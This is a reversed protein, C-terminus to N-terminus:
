QLVRAMAYANVLVGDRFAFDVLTGEIAFGHKEYLAIAAANDVYVTLELRRVNLWRDALDIAAAVLASGVGRRQWRADVSLGIRAAHRRRPSSPNGVLGLSGVVKGAACASLGHAGALPDELRKRWVEPATFPVQLTGLVSGAQNNIGAIAEYDDPRTARVVIKPKGM